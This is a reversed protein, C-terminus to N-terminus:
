PRWRSGALGRGAGDPGIEGLVDLGVDDVAGVGGLGGFDLDGEKKVGQLLNSVSQPSSRPLLPEGARGEFEGGLGRNIPCASDPTGRSQKCIQGVRPTPPTPKPPPCPDAVGPGREWFEIRCDVWLGM